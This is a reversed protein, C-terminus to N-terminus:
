PRPAGGAPLSAGTPGAFREHPLHTAKSWEDWLGPDSQLFAAFGWESLLSGPAYRWRAEFVYPIYPQRACTAGPQSDQRDIDPERGAAGFLVWPDNSEDALSEIRRLNRGAVVGALISEESPRIVLFDIAGPWADLHPRLDSATSDNLTLIRRGTYLIGVEEEATSAVVTDVPQRALRAGLASWTEGRIQERIAAAAPVASCLMLCWCALAAIRFVVITRTLEPQRVFAGSVILGCALLILVMGIQLYETILTLGTPVMLLPILYALAVPVLCLDRSRRVRTAAYGIGLVLLIIGGAGFMAGTEVLTSSGGSARSVAGIEAVGGNRTLLAVAHGVFHLLTSNFVTSGTKWRLFTLSAMVVIAVLTGVAFPAIAKAFRPRDSVSLALWFYIPFVFWMVMAMNDAFPYLMAVVWLVLGSEMGHPRLVRWAGATLLLLSFLGTTGIQNYQTYMRLHPISVAVLGSMWVAGWAGALIWGLVAGCLVVAVGVLSWFRLLCEARFECQDSKDGCLDLGSRLLAVHMGGWPLAAVRVLTNWAPQPDLISTQDLALAEVIFLANDSERIGAHRPPLTLALSLAMSSVILGILIVRARVSKYGSGGTGEIM